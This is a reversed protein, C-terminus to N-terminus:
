PSGAEAVPLHARFHRTVADVAFDVQAPQDYFDIQSGRGWVLEAGSVAAALARVNDPLVCDDSHVFMTPTAVKDAGSLGDFTLWYLWTLEAM